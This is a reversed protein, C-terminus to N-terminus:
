FIRIVAFIVSLFIFHRFMFQSFPNAFWMWPLSSTDLIHLACVFSGTLYHPVCKLLCKVFSFIGIALLMHFSAWPCKDNPFISILILVLYWKMDELIAVILFVSQTWHQSPYTSIPVSLSQQHARLITGGIQFCNPM